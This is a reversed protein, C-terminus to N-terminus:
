SGLYKGRLIHVVKGSDRCAMVLLSTAMGVRYHDIETQDQYGIRPELLPSWDIKILRCIEPVMKCLDKYTCALFAFDAEYFFKNMEVIIPVLVNKFNINSVRYYKNSMPKM